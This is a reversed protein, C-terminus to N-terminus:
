LRWLKVLRQADNHYALMQRYFAHRQQRQARNHRAQALLKGSAARIVARASASVPLNLRTYSGYM